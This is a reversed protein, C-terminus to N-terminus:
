IKIEGFYVYECKGIMKIKKNNIKIILFGGDLIIKIKKNLKKIKNCYYAVACAGSGCAKTIGSGREFVKVRVKDIDIVKIFEVNIGDSFSNCIHKGIKQMDFNFNNVFQLCHKNGVDVVIHNKFESITASGIDVEVVASNGMVKQVKCHLFKKDSKITCKKKNTKQYLYFAVCRTANGCMTAKTGDSNYIKIECDCSTHKCIVVLGDSGVGFGRRSLKKSLASFDYNYKGSINDVFLYDNGLGHM